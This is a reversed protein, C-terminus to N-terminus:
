QFLKSIIQSNQNAIALAQIGLQQQVQLAQLRSSAETMDADVLSAHGATLADSLVSIFEEQTELVAKTAGIRAAAAIVDNIADDVTNLAGAFLGVTDTDRTLTHIGRIEINFDARGDGTVDGVVYTNSGVHSYKVQGAGVNWDGVPDFGVFNLSQHGAQSISADMASLDLIDINEWGVITDRQTPSMGSEAARTFVFTDAGAGGILTDKGLGGILTDNGSGGTLRDAGATGTLVLSAGAGSGTGAAPKPSTLRLPDSFDAADLAAVRGLIGGVGAVTDEFLITRSTDFALTGIQRSAGDYSSVLKTVGGSGSLWNQGNVTASAAINKMGKIQAGIEARLAALDAGPQSATVFAQKIKNLAVLTSNLAATFTDLMAVSQKISSRVAGLAGIDSKMKVATSWAAANHSAESVRLGTSMQGQTKNLSNQTSRIVQLASLANLNSRISLM